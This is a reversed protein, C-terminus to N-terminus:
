RAMKVIGIQFGMNIFSSYNDTAPTIFNNSVLNASNSAYDFHAAAKIRWKADEKFAFIVGVEPRVQVGWSSVSEGYINYYQSFKTSTAGVGLGGYPVVRKDMSAFFYDINFTFSNNYSYNYLEASITQTGYTYTRYPVHTKYVTWTYEGGIWLRDISNLQKRFGLKFGLSSADNIYGPNSRPVNNDWTFYFFHDRLSGSKTVVNKDPNKTRDFYYQAKATISCLFLSLIFFTLKM